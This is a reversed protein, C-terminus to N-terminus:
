RKPTDEMYEPLPAEGAFALGALTDMVMNVWLM